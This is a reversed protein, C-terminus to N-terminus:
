YFVHSTAGPPLEEEESHFTEMKINDLRERCCLEGQAVCPQDLKCSQCM